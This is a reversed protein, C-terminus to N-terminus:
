EDGINDGKDYYEFCQKYINLLYKLHADIDKLNNMNELSFGAEPKMRCYSVLGDARMTLSMIGTPCSLYNIRNEPYYECGLCNQSFTRIPTVDYQHDAITLQCGNRTDIFRRMRIGKDGAHSENEERFNMNKLENVLEIMQQKTDEIKIRGGFDNITLVKVGVLGNQAAFTFINKIEKVNETTVVINIEICFGLNKALLINGKVRELTSQAADINYTCPKKNKSINYFSNYNLTDLSIKLLLTDKADEWVQKINGDENLFVEHLNYGNTCLVIKDYSNDIACRVIRELKEKNLFPEGGTIRLRSEEKPIFNEINEKFLEILHEIQSIDVKKAVRKLNEGGDPCYRCDFNCEDTVNVVLSPTVEFERKLYNHAADIVPNIDKSKEWILDFYAKFGNYFYSGKNFRYVQSDKSHEGDKYFTMYLHEETIYLRFM